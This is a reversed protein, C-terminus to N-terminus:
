ETKAKLSLATGVNQHASTLSSGGCALINRYCGVVSVVVSPPGGIPALIRSNGCQGGKKQQKASREILWFPEGHLVIIVIGGQWETSGKEPAKEREEIKSYEM